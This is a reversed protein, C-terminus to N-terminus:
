FTISLSLTDYYGVIYIDNYITQIRTFHLEQTVIFSM